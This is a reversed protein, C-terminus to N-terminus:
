EPVKYIKREIRGNNNVFGFHPTRSVREAKTYAPNKYDQLYILAIGFAMAKDTNRAGFYLFEELLARSPIFGCYDEVYEAILGKLYEKAAPTMQIGLTNTKTGFIRNVTSPTRAMMYKYGMTDFHKIMMYRNREILVKANSFYILAMLAQEYYEIVDSPRDTYECVIKPPETGRQRKLIFMSLDSAEDFVEDHDAPDCGAVYLGDVGQHPQEYIIVKGRADPIWMVGGEKKWRFFGHVKEPPNDFLSQMQARIKVLNGVGAATTVTFAEAVTLPYKQIFTNLEEVRLAQRRFREYVVWRICNERDDNGFEDCNLGMWGSFFFRKLKYLHANQWMYELDKGEAGIDGATGFLIPIGVRRTEQMLCDETYAWLTALNRLKGAEDCVWKNLMMGEYANDTPAVAVITSRNGRRLKNNQADRIYYSFDINSKTNGATTPVRLFAPLNDYLFKVKQFLLISDRDTKSNMGVNYYTNFLCDHLADAAEKWSAGVRRRKVCIIGWENSRQCAEIFKFWENDVVRFQPRIRKGLKQIWCYNFYFYMKGPMGNYGEKCRRIEEEAWRQFGVNDLNKPIEVHEQKISNFPLSGCILMYRKVEEELEPLYQNVPIVRFKDDQEEPAELLIEGGFDIGIEQINM